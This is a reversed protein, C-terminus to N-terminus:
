EDNKSKFLFLGILLIISVGIWLFIENDDVSNSNEMITGEPIGFLEKELDSSLYTKKEGLCLDIYLYYLPQNALFLFLFIKQTINLNVDKLYILIRKM